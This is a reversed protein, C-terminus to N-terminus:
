GKRALLNLEEISRNRHILEDNRILRFLEYQSTVNRGYWRLYASDVAKYKLATGKQELFLTYQAYAHSEICYNLELAYRPKTLYLLYSLWFYGFAFLMPIATHIIFNASEEKEALESIVVVHMTENDQAMRSFRMKRGLEQAKNANRYSTTLLTFFASDWSHYPVRAIVEIARFKLYSPNHGFVVNGALVFFGGLLRPTTACPYDDHLKKYAERTEDDNLALVFEESHHADHEM